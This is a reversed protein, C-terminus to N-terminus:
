KGTREDNKYEGEHIECFTYIMLGKGNREDNKYEGEHIEGSLHKM